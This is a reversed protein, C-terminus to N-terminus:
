SHLQMLLPCSCSLSLSPCLLPPFMPCCELLNLPAAIALLHPPPQNIVEEHCCCSLPSDLYLSSQLLHCPLTPTPPQSFHDQFPIERQILLWTGLILNENFHVEVPSDRLSNQGKFDDQPPQAIRDHPVLTHELSAQDGTSEPSWSV